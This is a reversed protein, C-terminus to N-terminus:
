DYYPAPAADLGGEDGVTYVFAAPVLQDGSEADLNEGPGALGTVLAALVLFHQTEDGAIAGALFRYKAAELGGVVQNYAVAAGREASAAFKLVNRITPNAVLTDPPEFTDAVEEQDVPTGGLEEIAEALAQAHLTHDNIFSTAVSIIVDKLAFLPDDEPADGILGAGAAYATLALYEATLLSNLPAIDADVVPPGGGEGGGGGQGSGGDGGQGGSSSSAQATSTPGGSSSTSGNGSTTGNGSSASGGGAGTETDDGCAAAFLGLLASAASTAGTGLLARRENAAVPETGLDTSDTNEDGSINKDNKM